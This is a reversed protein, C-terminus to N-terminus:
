YHIKVLTFFPSFENIVEEEREREAERARNLFERAQTNNPDLALTKDFATIAERFRGQSFALLGNQFEQQIIHLSRQREREEHESRLRAIDRLRNTVDRYDRVLAQASEFDTAALNFENNALHGMASQYFIEAQAARQEHLRIKELEEDVRRIYNRAERNRSDLNLVQQYSLRATRYDRGDFLSKGEALLNRITEFRIRNDVALQCRRRSEQIDPDNPV